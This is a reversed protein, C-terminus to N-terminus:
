FLHMAHSSNHAHKVYCAFCVYFKGDLCIACNYGTSTCCTCVNCIKLAKGLQEMTHSNDHLPLGFLQMTHNHTHGHTLFCTYCINFTGHTCVPCHYGAWTHCNCMNCVRWQKGFSRMAHSNDHGNQAYCVDCVDFDGGKCVPCHYGISVYNACITCTRLKKGFLAFQMGETYRFNCEFWHNGDPLTKTIAIVTGSTTTHFMEWGNQGALSLLAFADRLEIAFTRKSACKWDWYEVESSVDHDFVGALTFNCVPLYIQSNHKYVLSGMVKGGRGVFAFTEVTGTYEIKRGIDVYPTAEKTVMNRMFLRKDHQEIVSTQICQEMQIYAESKSEAIQHRFPQEYEIYNRAIHMNM